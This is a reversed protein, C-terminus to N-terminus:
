DPSSMNSFVNNRTESINDTTLNELNKKAKKEQRPKTKILYWKNM